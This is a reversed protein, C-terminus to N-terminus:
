LDVNILWFTVIYNIWWKSDFYSTLREWVQMPKTYFKLDRLELGLKRKNSELIIAYWNWNYILGKKCMDEYM